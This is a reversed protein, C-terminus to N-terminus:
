EIIDKIMQEKKEQLRDKIDRVVWWVLMPWAIMSILIVVAAGTVRYDFRDRAIFVCYVVGSLM